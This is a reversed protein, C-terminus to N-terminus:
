RRVKYGEDRNQLPCATSKALIMETLTRFVMLRAHHPIKQLIKDVQALLSNGFM